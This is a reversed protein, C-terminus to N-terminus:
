DIVDEGLKRFVFFDLYCMGELAGNIGKFGEDSVVDQCCHIFKVAASNKFIPNKSRNTRQGFRAESTNWVNKSVQLRYRLPLTKRILM